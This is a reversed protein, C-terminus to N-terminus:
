PIFDDHIFVRTSDDHPPRRIASRTKFFRTPPTTTVTLRDPWYIGNDTERQYLFYLTKILLATPSPQLQDSAYGKILSLVEKPLMKLM